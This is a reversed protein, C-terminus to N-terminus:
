RGFIQQPYDSDYSPRHLVRDQGRRHSKRLALDQSRHALRGLTTQQNGFSFLSAHAKAVRQKTLGDTVVEVRCFDGVKVLPDRSSQLSIDFRVTSRLETTM